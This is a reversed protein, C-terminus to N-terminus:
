RCATEDASRLSMGPRSSCSLASLHRRGTLSEVENSLADVDAELQEIQRAQIQLAAVAMSAYAYLDVQGREMDSAPINPSDELIIGLPRRKDGQKYRFTALRVSGLAQKLQELDTPSVYAIDDKFRRSSIPCGGAKPDRGTCLLVSGCHHDPDGCSSGQNTCPLGALEGNSCASVGSDRVAADDPARCVPDGCTSYWQLTGTGDGAAGGDSAGGGNDSTCAALRMAAIAVATAFLRNAM